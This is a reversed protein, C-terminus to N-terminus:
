HVNYRTPIFGQTKEMLARKFPLKIPLPHRMLCCPYVIASIFYMGNDFPPFMSLMLMFQKLSVLDNCLYMKSKFRKDMDQKKKEM